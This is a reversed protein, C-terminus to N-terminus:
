STPATWRSGCTPRSNGGKHAYRVGLGVDGFRQKDYSLGAVPFTAGVALSDAGTNLDRRRHALVGGVPPASPLM